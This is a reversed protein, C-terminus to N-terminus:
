PPDGGSNEGGDIPEPVLWLVKVGNIMVSMEINGNYRASETGGQPVENKSNIHITNELSFSGVSCSISAGASIINAEDPLLAITEVISSLSNIAEIKTSM